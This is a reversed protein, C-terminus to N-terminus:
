IRGPSLPHSAQPRIFGITPPRTGHPVSAALRHDRATATITASTAPLRADMTTSLPHDKAVIGLLTNGAPHATMMLVTPDAAIPPSLTGTTKTIRQLQPRTRGAYPTSFSSSRKSSHHRPLSHNTETPTPNFVRTYSYFSWGAPLPGRIRSLIFHRRAAISPYDAM